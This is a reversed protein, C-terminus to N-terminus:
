NKSLFLSKKQVELTEFTEKEESQKKRVTRGFYRRGQQQECIVDLKVIALSSSRNKTESLLYCLWKIKSSQYM